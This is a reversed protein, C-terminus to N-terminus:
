ITPKTPWVIDDPNDYTQPIDRLAQRYATFEAKKEPTLPADLMQTWDTASILSDRYQRTGAWRVENEFIVEHARTRNVLVGNEVCKGMWVEDDISSPHELVNITNNCDSMDKFPLATKIFGNNDYYIFIM